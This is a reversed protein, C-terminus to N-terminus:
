FQNGSSISSCARHATQKRGGGQTCTSVYGVGQLPKVFYYKGKM